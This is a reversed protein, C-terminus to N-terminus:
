KEPESLFNGFSPFPKFVEDEGIQKLTHPERNGSGSSFGHSIGTLSVPTRELSRAQNEEKGYYYHAHLNTHARRSVLRLSAVTCLRAKCSKHERESKSGAGGRSHSLPEKWQAVHGGARELLEGTNLTLIGQGLIESFNAVHVFSIGVNLPVNGFNGPNESFSECYGSFCTQPQQINSM